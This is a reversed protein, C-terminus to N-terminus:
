ATVALGARIPSTRRSTGPSLTSSRRASEAFFGQPAVSESSSSSCRDRPRAMATIVPVPRRSSITPMTSSRVPRGGSQCWTANPSEASHPPQNATREVAPASILSRKSTLRSMIRAATPAATM